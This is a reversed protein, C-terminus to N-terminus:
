SAPVVINELKVKGELKKMVQSIYDVSCNQLEFSKREQLAVQM